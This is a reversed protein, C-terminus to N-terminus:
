KLLSGLRGRIALAGFAAISLTWWDPHAVAGRGGGGGPGGMGEGACVLACGCFDRGCVFNASAMQGTAYRRFRVGNGETMLELRGGDDQGDGERGSLSIETEPICFIIGAFYPAANLFFGCTGM